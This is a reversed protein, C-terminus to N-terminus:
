VNIISTYITQKEQNKINNRDNNYLEYLVSNTNLNRIIM